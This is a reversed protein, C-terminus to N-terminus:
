RPGFNWRGRRRSMDASYLMGDREASYLIYSGSAQMASVLPERHRCIVMGCDYPTNLTKHGDVSWSDAKEIGKTLHRYKESAAAWFDSRVTWTCGPVRPM